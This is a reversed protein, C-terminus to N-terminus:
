KRVVKKKPGGMHMSRSPGAESCSVEVESSVRKRVLQQKKAKKAIPSMGVAGSSESKGVEMARLVPSCEREFVVVESHVKQVDAYMGLTLDGTRLVGRHKQYAKLGQWCSNFREKVLQARTPKRVMAKLEQLPEEFFYAMEIVKFAEPWQLQLAQLQEDLSEAEAICCWGICQSCVKNCAPVLRSQDLMRHEVNSISVKSGKANCTYARVHQM